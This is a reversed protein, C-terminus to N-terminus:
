LFNLNSIRLLKTKALTNMQDLMGSSKENMLDFPVTFKTILCIHSYLNRDKVSVPSKQICDRFESLFQNLGIAM